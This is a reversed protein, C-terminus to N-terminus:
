PTVKKGPTVESTLSPKWPRFQWIQPPRRPSPGTQVLNLAFHIAAEPPTQLLLYISIHKNLM